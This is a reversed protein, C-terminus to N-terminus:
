ILEFKMNLIKLVMFMNKLTFSRSVRFFTFFFFRFSGVRNDTVTHISWFLLTTFHMSLEHSTNWDFERDRVPEWAGAAVCADGVGAVTPGASASAFNWIFVIKTQVSLLKAFKSNNIHFWYTLSIWKYHITHQRIYTQEYGVLVMAIVM